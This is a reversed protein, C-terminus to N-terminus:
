ISTEQDSSRDSDVPSQGSADTNNEEETEQISENIESVPEQAEQEAEHEQDDEEALEEEELWVDFDHRSLVVEKYDLDEIAKQFMNLDKLSTSIRNRLNENSALSQVFQMREDEGLQGMMSGYQQQIQGIAQQTIQEESVTVEYYDALKQSIIAWRVERKFDKYKQELKEQDPTEDEEKDEFEEQFYKWLFSEPLDFETKDLLQDRFDAFMKEEGNNRYRQALQSSIEKRFDAENDVEDDGLVQNYFDPGLEAEKFTIAAQIGVSFHNGLDDRVHEDLGLVQALTEKGGLEELTADYTQNVGKGALYKRLADPIQGFDIFQTKDLGGELIEGSEDDKERIRIYARVDDADVIEDLRDLQGHDKQLQEVEEDLEDETPQLTKLELGELVSFDIEFEPMRGIEFVFHFDGDQSWDYESPDSEMLPHFIIPGVQERIKLDIQESLIGKVAQSRLQEGAMKLILGKPVKGKRFGPMNAKKRQAEIEEHLTDRYDAESVVVELRANLGDDDHLNIEVPYPSPQEYLRHITRISPSSGGRREASSGLDLAAVM